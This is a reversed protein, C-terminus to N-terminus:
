AALRIVKAHELITEPKRSLFPRRGEQQFQAETKQGGKKESSGQLSTSGTGGMESKPRQTRGNSQKTARQPHGNILERTKRGGRLASGDSITRLLRVSTHRQRKPQRTRGRAAAVACLRGVRTIRHNPHWTGYTYRIRTKRLGGLQLFKAKGQGQWHFVRVRTTVTPPTQQSFFSKERQTFRTSAFRISCFLPCILSQIVERTDKTEKWPRM